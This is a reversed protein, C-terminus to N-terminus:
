DGGFLAIIREQPMKTAKFVAKLEKLTWTKKQLKNYITRLPIGTKSALMQKDWGLEALRVNIIKTIDMKRRGPLAQRPAM